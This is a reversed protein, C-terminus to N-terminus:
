RDIVVALLCRKSSYWYARACITPDCVAKIGRLQRLSELKTTMHRNKICNSDTLQNRTVLARASQQHVCFSAIREALIKHNIYNNLLLM